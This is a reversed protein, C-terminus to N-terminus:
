IGSSNSYNNEDVVEKIIKKIQTVCIDWTLFDKVYESGLKGKEKADERSDFANAMCEGLSNVDPLRWYSNTEPLCPFVPAYEESM